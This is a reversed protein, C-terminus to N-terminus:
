GHGPKRLGRPHHRWLLHQLLEVIAKPSAYNTLDTFGDIGFLALSVNRRRAGETLLAPDKEALEMISRGVLRELANRYVKTKGWSIPM